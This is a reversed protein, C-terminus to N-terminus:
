GFFGSFLDIFWGILLFIKGSALYIIMISIVFLQKTKKGGYIVLADKSTGEAEKVSTLAENTVFKVKDLNGDKSLFMQVLPISIFSIDIMLSLGLVVVIGLAGLGLFVGIWGSWPKFILYAKAFDVRVDNQLQRVLSATSEDNSSIFNYVKNRNTTSINSDKVKSLSFDMIDSKKDQSLKKYTSFDFVLTCSKSDSGDKYEIFDFGALKNTYDNVENCYNSITNGENTNYTITLTPNAGVGSAQINYRPVIMLLVGILFILYKRM